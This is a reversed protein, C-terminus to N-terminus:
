FMHELWISNKFNVELNLPFFFYFILCFSNKLNLASSNGPRYKLDQFSFDFSKLLIM